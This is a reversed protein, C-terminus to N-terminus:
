LKIGASGLKAVVRNDIKKQGKRYPDDKYLFRYATCRLTDGLETNIYGNHQIPYCSNAEIFKELDPFQGFLADIYGQAEAESVNLTTGLTRASM